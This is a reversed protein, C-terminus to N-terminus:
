EQVVSPMWPNLGSSGEEVFHWVRCTALLGYVRALIAFGGRAWGGLCWACSWALGVKHMGELKVQFLMLGSLSVITIKTSLRFNDKAVIATFTGVLTGNWLRRTSSFACGCCNEFMKNWFWGLLFFISSFTSPMRIFSFCRTHQTYYIYYYCNYRWWYPCKEQPAIQPMHHFFEQLSSGQWARACLLLLLQGTYGHWSEEQLPLCSLCVFM